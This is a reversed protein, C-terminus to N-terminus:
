IKELDEKSMTAVVSWFSNPILIEGEKQIYESTEFWTKKGYSKHDVVYFGFPTRYFGKM